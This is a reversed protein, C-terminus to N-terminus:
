GAFLLALGLVTLLDAYGQLTSLGPQGECRGPKSAIAEGDVFTELGEELPVGEGGSSDIICVFGKSCDQDNECPEEPFREIIKAWIEAPRRKEIEGLYTLCVWSM